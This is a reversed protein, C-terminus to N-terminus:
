ALWGTQPILRLLAGSSFLAISNNWGTWAGSANSAVIYRDGEAPTAPPSTAGVSAVAMQALADILSLAENVTVHKQAQAAALYPLSLNPTNTM